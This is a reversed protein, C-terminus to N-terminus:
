LNTTSSYQSRGPRWLDVTIALIQIGFVIGFIAGGAAIFYIFGDALRALWWGAFDIMLALMPLPTLLSRVGWPLRTMM